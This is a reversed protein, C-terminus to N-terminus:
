IMDSEKPVGHVTAWWTGKDKPNELCSHQLPNGTGEEPSRRSGPILGMDEANAPPNKAGSGGPFCYSDLSYHLIVECQDSRGDDSFDAFSLHQLPHPSFPFSKCQQNSHFDICGSHLITHLNRLSSFISSGYSGAMRSRPLYRFVIIESSVYM